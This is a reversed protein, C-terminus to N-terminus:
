LLKIEVKTFAYGNVIMDAKDAVQIIDTM